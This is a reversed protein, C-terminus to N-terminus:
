AQSLPLLLRLHGMVQRDCCSQQAALQERVVALKTEAEKQQLAIAEDHQEKMSQTALAASSQLSALQEGLLQNQARLHVCEQEYRSAQHSTSLLEKRASALDQVSESLSSLLREEQAWSGQVASLSALLGSNEATLRQCDNDLKALRLQM